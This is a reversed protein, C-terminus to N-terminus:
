QLQACCNEIHVDDHDSGAFDTTVYRLTQAALPVINRDDLLVRNSATLDFIFEIYEGDASASGVGSHEGM